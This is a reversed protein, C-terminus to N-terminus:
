APARFFSQSRNDQDVFIHSPTPPAPSMKELPCKKRGSKHQKHSALHHVVPALMNSTIAVTCMTFSSVHKHTLVTWGCDLLHAPVFRVSHVHINGFRPPCSLHPGLSLSLTSHLPPWLILQGYPSISM